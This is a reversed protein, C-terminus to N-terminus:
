DAAHSNWVQHDTGAVKSPRTRFEPTFHIVIKDCGFTSEIKSEYHGSLLVPSTWHFNIRIPRCLLRKKCHNSYGIPPYYPFYHCDTSFLLFKCSIWVPSKM